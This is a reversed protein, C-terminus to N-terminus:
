IQGIIYGEQIIAQSKYIHIHYQLHFSKLKMRLRYITSWGDELINITKIQHLKHQIEM